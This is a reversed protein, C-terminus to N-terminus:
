AALSSVLLVYAVKWRSEGNRGTPRSVRSSSVYTFLQVFLIGQSFSQFLACALVPAVLQPPIRQSLPLLGSPEYGTM